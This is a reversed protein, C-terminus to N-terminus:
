GILSTTAQKPRDGTSTRLLAIGPPTRVRMQLTSPHDVSHLLVGGARPTPPRQPQPDRVAACASPRCGPVSCSARAPSEKGRAPPHRGDGYGCRPPPPGAPPSRPAACTVRSATACAAPTLLPMSKRRNPSRSPRNRANSLSASASKWPAQLPPGGGSPGLAGATSRSVGRESAGQRIAGGVAAVHAGRRHAMHEALAAMGGREAAGEEKTNHRDAPRHSANLARRALDSKTLGGPPSPRTPSPARSTM